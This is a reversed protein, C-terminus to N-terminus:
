RKTSDPRLEKYAAEVSPELFLVNFSRRGTATNGGFTERFADLNVAKRTAELDAGGAVARQVQSWTSDILPILQNVYTWDSQVDGHGPVITTADLETLRRLTGSWGSLFSGFSFPVPHVVLDGTAVIREKPLYVVLDGATNGRGLFKVVISREGRHLVLSDAVTLTPPILKTSKMDRLFFEYMALRDTLRKRLEPTVPEGNSQKGTDLAKRYGAIEAPYATVLNEALSPIDETLVMHRTFPHGVFEVGPYEDRFVQNGYHHDSHWHTTIVYRVPNKTLKRIEAVTQRASAPFINADVVVVDSENIIILVNSDSAGGPSPARVMAHVGPALEKLRYPGPQANAASTCAIM